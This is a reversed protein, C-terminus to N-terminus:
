RWLNSANLDFAHKAEDEERIEFATALSLVCAGTLLYFAPQSNTLVM